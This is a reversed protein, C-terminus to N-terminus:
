GRGIQEILRVVCRRKRVLLPTIQDGRMDGVAALQVLGLLFVDGARLVPREGPLTIRQTLSEYFLQV